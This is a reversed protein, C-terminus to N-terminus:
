AFAWLRLWDRLLRDGKERWQACTREKGAADILAPDGLSVPSQMMGGCAESEDVWDNTDALPNSDLSWLEACDNWYDISRHPSFFFFFFFFFIRMARYHGAAVGLLM